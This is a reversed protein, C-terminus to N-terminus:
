FKRFIFLIILSVKVFQMNPSKNCINRHTSPVYYQGGIRAGRNIKMELGTESYVTMSRTLDRKRLSRV